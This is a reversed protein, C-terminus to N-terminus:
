PALAGHNDGMWGKGIAKFPLELGLEPVELAIWQTFSNSNPGPWMTYTGAYPYSSVAGRVQGVMDNARSGTVEHLLVPASGFWPKDPNGQSTHLATPTNRLRWGIIQHITFEDENEARTAVWTHIAFHGRFGWVDAGYVRVAAGQAVGSAPYPDPELVMSVALLSVTALIAGATLRAIFRIVSRM